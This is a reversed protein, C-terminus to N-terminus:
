LPLVSMILTALLILVVIMIWWPQRKQPLDERTIWRNCSPCHDAAELMTGGCHPCSVYGNEYDDDSEDQWDESSDDNSSYPM